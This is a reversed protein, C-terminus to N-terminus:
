APIVQPNRSVFALWSFDSYVSRFRLNSLDTNEHHWSSVLVSAHFALTGTLLEHLV